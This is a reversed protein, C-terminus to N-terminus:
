YWTLWVCCDQYHRRVNPITVSRPANCTLCCMYTTITGMIIRMRYRHMIKVLITILQPDIGRHTADDWLAKLSPFIESGAEAFSQKDFGIRKSCIEKLSQHLTFLSRIRKM